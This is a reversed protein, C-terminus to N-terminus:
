RRNVHDRLASSKCTAMNYTTYYAIFKHAECFTWIGYEYVKRTTKGYFYWPIWYKFGFNNYNLALRTNFITLVSMFFIYKLLSKTYQCKESSSLELTFKWINSARSRWFRAGAKHLLFKNKCLIIKKIKHM